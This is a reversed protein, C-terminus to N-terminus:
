RGVSEPASSHANEAKRRPPSYSPLHPMRAGWVILAMSKADAATEWGSLVPARFVLHLVIRQMHAAIAEAKSIPTSKGLTRITGDVEKMISVANWVKTATLSEHFLSRYRPADTEWLLSIERKAQVAFWVDADACALAYTAEKLTCGIPPDPEGWKFVYTRKEVAFDCALRSQVPDLAAFDQATVANQLNTSKTIRTAFGTPCDRLEIARIQIWLKDREAVRCHGCAHDILTPRDFVQVVRYHLLQGAECSGGWAPPKKM